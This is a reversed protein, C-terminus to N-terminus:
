KLKKAKSVPEYVHIEDGDIEILGAEILNKMAKEVDEACMMNFVRTIEPLDSIRVTNVHRMHGTNGNKKLKIKM